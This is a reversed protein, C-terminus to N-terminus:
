DPNGRQHTPTAFWNRQAHAIEREERTFRVDFEAMEADTYSVDDFDSDWGGHDPPPNHLPTITNALDRLPTARNAVAGLTGALQPTTTAAPRPPVPPPTKSATSARMAAAAASAPPSPM